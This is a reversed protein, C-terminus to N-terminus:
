KVKEWPWPGNNWAWSNYNINTTEATLPGFKSEYNAITEGLINKYNNLLSLAEMDTPNVDLYLNLDIVAFNYQQIKLMLQQMETAGSLEVPTYNKYPIYLNDFLNGRVIGKYSNIEQTPVPTPEYNPLNKFYNAYDYNYNNM